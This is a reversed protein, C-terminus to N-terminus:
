SFVYKKFYNNIIHKKYYIFLIVILLLRLIISYIGGEIGYDGGFWTGNDPLSIHIFGEKITGSMPQSYFIQTYNWGFHLGISTFINKSLIFAFIYVISGFFHSITSIYSSHSNGLHLLAFISSTILIASSLKFYKKLFSFITYTFIIEEFFAGSFCTLLIKLQKLITFNNLSANEYFLVFFIFITSSSILFGSYFFKFNIKFTNWNVNKILNM